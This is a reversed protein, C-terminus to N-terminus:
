SKYHTGYTSGDGGKHAGTIYRHDKRAGAESYEPVSRNERDGAGVVQADGFDLLGKIASAVGPLVTSPAWGQDTLLEFCIGGHEFVFGGKLQPYVIRVFPPKLPYDDPLSVELDLSQELGMAALGQSLRGDVNLDRLRVAWKSLNERDLLRFEYGLRQGDEIGQQSLLAKAEGMLRRQFKLPKGEFKVFSLDVEAGASSSSSSASAAEALPEEQEPEMLADNNKAPPMEAADPAEEAGEVQQKIEGEAEARREMQQELEGNLEKPQMVVDEAERPVGDLPDAADNAGQGAVAAPEAEEV